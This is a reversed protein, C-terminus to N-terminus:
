GKVSGIMVGKAFYKQIFPYVCMIPVTSVVILAYKLMEAKRVVEVSSGADRQNNILIARLVIQLPKMSDSQLYILANMYSNWSAVATYLGIVAVIAKSLPLVITFFFRVNSCGDLDAAERLSDPITSSFFTRAIILHYVSVSTPLVMAWFTDLMNLNMIQIYTPVIGGNFYMAILFFVMLPRRLPFDKRGVVYAAPLTFLLAFATAGVTYIITNLYGRWVESRQFVEAYASFSPEVPWFWMEGRQIADPNSFSAIVVFYLPYAIIVFILICIIYTIITFALDGKAM